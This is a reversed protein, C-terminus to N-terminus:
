KRGDIITIESVAALKSINQTIRNDFCDGCFAKCFIVKGNKEATIEVAKRFDLICQCGPCFIQNGCSCRLSQIELESKMNGLVSKM